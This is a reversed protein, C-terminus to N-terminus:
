KFEYLRMPLKMSDFASKHLEYCKLGLNFMQRCFPIVCIDRQNAKNCSVAKCLFLDDNACLNCAVDDCEVSSEHIVGCRIEYIHHWYDENACHIITNDYKYEADIYKINNLRCWDVYAARDRWYGHEDLYQPDGDFEVRACVSPVILAVTLAIRYLGADLAKQGDELVEKFSFYGATTEKIM